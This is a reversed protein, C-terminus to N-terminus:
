KILELIPDGGLDVRLRAALDDVVEETPADGQWTLVEPEPEGPRELHIRGHDPATVVSLLAGTSQLATLLDLLNM